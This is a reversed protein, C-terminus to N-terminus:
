SQGRREDFYDRLRGLAGHLRSKVTGTPVNLVRAIEEQTLGSYFKLVVVERLKLSLHSLARSIDLEEADTTGRRPSEIDDM